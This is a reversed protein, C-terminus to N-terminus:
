VPPQCVGSVWFWKATDSSSSTPSIEPRYAKFWGKALKSIGLPTCSRAPGSEGTCGASKCASHNYRHRAKIKETQCLKVTEPLATQGNSMNQGWCFMFFLLIALSNVPQVPNLLLLDETFRHLMQPSLIPNKKGILSSPTSTSNEAGMHTRINSSFFVKQFHPPCLIHIRWLYSSACLVDRNNGM